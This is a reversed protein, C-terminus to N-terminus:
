CPGDSPYCTTSTTQHNGPTDTRHHPDVVGIKTYSGMSTKFLVDGNTARCNYLKGLSNDQDQPINSKSCAFYYMAYGTTATNTYTRGHYTYTYSFQRNRRNLSYDQYTLDNYNTVRQLFANYTYYIGGHSVYSCDDCTVTKNGVKKTPTYSPTVETVNGANDIAQVVGQVTNTMKSNERNACEGKRTLGSAQTQYCSGALVIQNIGSGGTDSISASLDARPSNFTSDEEGLDIQSAITYNITPATLDIKVTKTTKDSCNGAKDCAQFTITYTGQSNMNLYNATGSSDSGSPGAITYKYSGIGSLNDTSGTPQVFLCTNSWEKTLEQLGSPSSANGCAASKKYVKITPATPAKKDIRVQKTGCTTKNGANDEVEGPSQKADMEESFTKQVTQTKCGSVDGTESCTGQLTVNQNTWDNEKYGSPSTYDTSCSPKKRDLKINHKGTKKCNGANDCVKYEIITTGEETIMKSQKEAKDENPKDAGTTTLTFNTGGANPIVRGSPTKDEAYVKTFVKGSYWDENYIPNSADHPNIDTIDNANYNLAKMRLDITPSTTDIRILDTPVLCLSDDPTTNGVADTLKFTKDTDTDKKFTITYQNNKCSTKKGTDDEDYCYITITQPSKDWNERTSFLIQGNDNDILKLIGNETIPVKNARNGPCEPPTSDEANVEFTYPQKPKTNNVTVATVEIKLRTIKKKVYDTLDITKEIESSLVEYEKEELVSGGSIVRYKYYKIRAGELDNAANIRIIVKFEAISSSSNPDDPNKKNKVEYSINPEFLSSNNNNEKKDKYDPCVLTVVYNYKTKSIRTVTVVTENKDCNKKNQNKVNSIYKHAILDKLYITSKGGIEGPLLQPNDKLYEKAALEIQNKQAVYYNAKGRDILYKTSPVAVIALVGLITVVALLEVMTFGKKNLIKM